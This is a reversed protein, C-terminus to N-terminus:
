NTTQQDQKQLRRFDMWVDAIGLIVLIILGFSQIIIVLCLVIKLYGPINWKELLHILIAFGQFFYVLCSILVLCLGINSLLGKGFILLAAASIPIWILKEPLQWFRYNPWFSREKNIKIVLANGVVQNLWVTFITVCGLIGPLIRPVMKKVETIIQELNYLVDPTLEKSEKYANYMESLGTDLMELLTVYPNIGKFMGYVTWFIFWTLSLVLIGRGATVIADLGSRGSYYLSFGLPVLTLSFLIGPLLKHLLIATAAILVLSSRIILMGKNSRSMCLIFFVPVALLSNIWGFLGQLVSPMLFVVTVLLIQGFLQKSASGDNEYIAM